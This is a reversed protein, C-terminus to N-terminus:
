KMLITDPDHVNKDAFSPIPSMDDGDDDIVSDEVVEHNAKGVENKGLIALAREEKNKRSAPQQAVTPRRGFVANIVNSM